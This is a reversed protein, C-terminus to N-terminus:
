FSLLFILRNKGSGGKETDGGQGEQRGGGSEQRVRGGGGRKGEETKLRTQPIDHIVVSGTKVRAALMLSAGYTTLLM